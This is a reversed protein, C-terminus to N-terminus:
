QLKRYIAEPIPFTRNNLVAGLLRVNAAELSFKARRAADRRSSNAELVLVVGDSVQALALAGASRDIPPTSVLIYEFQERLGALFSQLRGPKLLTHPDSAQSGCPLLWLNSKATRLTFNGVAGPSLSVDTLGLPSEVGFYQCLGPVCFSADVACVSGEVEAALAESARACIQGPGYGPEVGCFAVVRLAEPSCLFLRGVLKIEEERILTSNRPRTRSGNPPATTPSPPKRSEQETEFQRLLSFSTSLSTM